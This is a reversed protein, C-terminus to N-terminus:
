VVMRFAIFGIAHGSSLPHSQPQSTSPLPHTNEDSKEPKDTPAPLASRSATQAPEQGTGAPQTFRNEM